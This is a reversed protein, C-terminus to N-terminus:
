VVSKRDLARKTRREAASAMADPDRVVDEGSKKRSLLDRLPPHSPETKIWESTARPGLARAIRAIELNYRARFTRSVWRREASDEEAGRIVQLFCIAELEQSVEERRRAGCWESPDDGYRVQGAPLRMARFIALRGQERPPPERKAPLATKGVRRGKKAATPVPAERQRRIILAAAGGLVATEWEIEGARVLAGLSPATTERPTLGEADVDLAAKVSSTAAILTSPSDSPILSIIARALDAGGAECLAASASDM